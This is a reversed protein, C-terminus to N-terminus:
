EEDMHENYKSMEDTEKENEESAKTLQGYVQNIGTSALGSVIGIAIADMISPAFEPLSFYGAIGLGAGCAGVIVPIYQSKIPSCKVGFGILYCIIVIASYTVVEQFMYNISM